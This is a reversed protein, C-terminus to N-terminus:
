VKDQAALYVDHVSIGSLCYYDGYREVIEKESIRMDYMEDKCKKSILISSSDSLPMTRKYDTPGYLSILPVSMSNAVHM